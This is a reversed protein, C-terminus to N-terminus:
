AAGLARWLDKSAQGRAAGRAGCVQACCLTRWLPHSMVHCPSSTLQGRLSPPSPTSLHMQRFFRSVCKALFEPIRAVNEPKVRTYHTEMAFRLVQLATDEAHHTQHPAKAGTRAGTPDGRAAADVACLRGETSAAETTPEVIASELKTHVLSPRALSSNAAIRAALQMVEAADDKAKETGATHAAAVAAAAVTAAM